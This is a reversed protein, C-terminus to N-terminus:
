IGCAAKWGWVFHVTGLSCIRKLFLLNLDIAIFPIFLIISLYIILYFHSISSLITSTLYPVVRLNLAVLTVPLLNTSYKTSLHSFM